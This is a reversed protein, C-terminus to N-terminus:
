SQLNSGTYNYPKGSIVIAGEGQALAQIASDDSATLIDSNFYGKNMWGELM